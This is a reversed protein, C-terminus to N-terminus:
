EDSRLRRVVHFWPFRDFRRRVLWLGNCSCQFRNETSRILSVRCTYLVFEVSCEKMDESCKCGCELGESEANFDAPGLEWEWWGEWSKELKGDLVREGVSAKVTFYEVSDM